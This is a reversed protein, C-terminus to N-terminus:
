AARNARDRFSRWGSWYHFVLICWWVFGGIGMLGFLPFLLFGIGGARAYVLLGVAPGGLWLGLAISMLMRLRQAEACMRWPVYVDEMLEDDSRSDDIM